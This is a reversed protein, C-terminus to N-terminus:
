TIEAIGDAHWQVTVDSGNGTFATFDLYFLLPDSTETNDFIVVANIDSSQAPVATFTTDAADFYARGGTDDETVAKTGLTQRAYSGGTCENTLDSVTNHTAAFTYTDQMLAVDITNALLETGGDSAGRLIQFMGRNYWVDAM